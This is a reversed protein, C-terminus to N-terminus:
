KKRAARIKNTIVNQQNEQIDGVVEREWVDHATLKTDLGTIMSTLANLADRQSKFLNDWQTALVKQAEIYTTLISSWQTMMKEQAKLFLIVVIVIGIIGPASQELAKLLTTEEM